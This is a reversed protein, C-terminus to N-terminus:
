QTRLRDRWVERAVRANVLQPRDPPASLKATSRATSTPPRNRAAHEYLFVPLHLERGVRDGLERALAACEDLTSGDLPVFPVVDAAGMRPHVGQHATLDILDRATRIGEFAAQLAADPAAAFTIVTRNHWPDTSLDLVRVGRVAAIAQRIAAIVEPRRGESFNPVCEILPV